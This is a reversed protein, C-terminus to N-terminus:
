RFPRSADTTAAPPPAAADAAQKLRWAKILAVAGVTCAVVVTLGLLWWIYETANQGLFSYLLLQPGSGALTVLMFTRFTM